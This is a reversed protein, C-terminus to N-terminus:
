KANHLVINLAGWLQLGLMAPLYFITAAFCRRIDSLLAKWLYGLGLVMPLVIVFFVWCYGWPPQLVLRDTALAAFALAGPPVVFALLLSKVDVVRPDRARERRERHKVLAVEARDSGQPSIPVTM